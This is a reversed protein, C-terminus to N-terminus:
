DALVFIVKVDTGKGAESELKIEANHMVAIHKVISMGLGTGGTMKSRSKDVRYFREFIRKQYEKPIGIGTDNIELVANRDSISVLVDVRGGRKNYRVANDCLNYIMEEIMDPNANIVADEGKLEITVGQSIAYKNLRAVCKEASEYLDVHELHVDNTTCDMQSLRIIDNILTLLQKSSKHIEGAFRKVDNSNAIGSEILESYGSITTLPTKLEHSVNATFEQRLNISHIIDNQQKRIKIIFPRLEEYTDLWVPMMNDLSEALEKVTRFMSKIMVHSIVMCVLIILIGLAAIIIITKISEGYNYFVVASMVATTIISVFTLLLYQFRIRRKM